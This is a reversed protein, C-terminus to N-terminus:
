STLVYFLLYLTYSRFLKLFTYILIKLVNLDEHTATLNRTLNKYSTTYKLQHPM